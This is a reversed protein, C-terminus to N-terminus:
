ADEPKLSIPAFIARRDEPGPLVRLLIADSMATRQFGIRRELLISVPSILEGELVGSENQYHVVGLCHRRDIALAVM